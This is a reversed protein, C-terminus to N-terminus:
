VQEVALLIDRYKLVEDITRDIFQLDQVSCKELKPAIHENIIYKPNASPSDMLFHDISSDLTTAIRVILDLSPRHDGTEVASLHNSTCGCALALEEQTMNRLKRASRIRKGVKSFDINSIM